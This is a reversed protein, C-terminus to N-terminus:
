RFMRRLGPNTVKRDFATQSRKYYLLRDEADVASADKDWDVEILVSLPEFRYKLQQMAILTLEVDAYHRKYEPHFLDGGYNRLAWERAALGFAALRGAWKGDNFGLLGGDKEALAELAAALWRRGAYADQAVYGFQPAASRRFAANAAAVFGARRADHVMLLQGRVGARAALQMASRRALAADIFPMVILPEGERGLADPLSDLSAVAVELAPPGEPAPAPM